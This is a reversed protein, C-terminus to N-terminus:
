FTKGHKNSVFTMLILQSNVPFLNVLYHCVLKDICRSYQRWPLKGVEPIFLCHPMDHSIYSEINKSFEFPEYTNLSVYKYKIVCGEVKVTSELIGM